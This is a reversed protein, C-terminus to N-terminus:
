DKKKNNFMADLLDNRDTDVGDMARKVEDQDAIPRANKIQLLRFLIKRLSIETQKQRKGSQMSADTAMKAYQVVDKLAASGDNDKGEQFAKDAAKTAQEAYDVALRAKDVGSAADARSKLEKQAFAPLALCLLVFVAALCHKM